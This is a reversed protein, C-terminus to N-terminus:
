DNIVGNVWKKLPEIPIKESKVYLPSGLNVECDKVINQLYKLTNEKVSFVGCKRSAFNIHSLMKELYEFSSPNPKECGLFFTDVPLIDTGEFNAGNCIKVKFDPLADSILRAISQIKETGDTIILAKRSM